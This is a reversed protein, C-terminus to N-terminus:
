KRQSMAVHNDYHRAAQRVEVVELIIVYTDPLTLYYSTNYPTTYYTTSTPPITYYTSPRCTRSYLPNM